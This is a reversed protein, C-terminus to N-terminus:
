KGLLVTKAFDINYFFITKFMITFKTQKPTRTDLIDLSFEEGDKPIVTVTVSSLARMMNMIKKYDKTSVGKLIDGNREENRMSEFVLDLTEKFISKTWTIKGKSHHFVASKNLLAKPKEARVDEIMQLFFNVGGLCRAAESLETHIQKKSEEDLLNYNM